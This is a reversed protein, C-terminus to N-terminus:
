AWTRIARLLRVLASAALRQLLVIPSEPSALLRAEMDSVRCDAGVANLSPYMLAFPKEERQKRERLRRVADENRADAMLQFGGIGKLALIKGERVTKAAQLLAEHHSALM